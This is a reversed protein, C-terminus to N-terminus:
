TNKQVLGSVAFGGLKCIMQLAPKMGADAKINISRLPRHPSRVIRREGGKGEQVGLDMCRGDDAVKGPQALCLDAVCADSSHGPVV